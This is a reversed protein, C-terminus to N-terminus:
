GNLIPSQDPFAWTFGTIAVLIRIAIRRVPAPHELPPPLIVSWLGAASAADIALSGM